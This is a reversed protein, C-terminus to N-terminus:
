NLCRAPPTPSGSLSYVAGVDRLKIALAAGQKAKAEDGLRSLQIHVRADNPALAPLSM